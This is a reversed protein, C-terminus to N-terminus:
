GAAEQTKQVIRFVVFEAPRLPAFGIRINLHGNLIDDRTMTDPGVTVHFAHEPKTGKFAGQRWQATLFQRIADRVRDWLPPANPEFVAWQLSRCISHELFIFLRRVSVYRGDTDASLTRAGWVRIGRRPFRRIVNVGRPDLVDQAAKDIDFELGLAGIVPENAPAKFVGRTEDTRAYVGCVHGGPPVRVPLGGQPDAVLIWPHYCAAYASDHRARPDLAAADRRDPPLDIVAFRFRNAECHAIVAEAVADPAAPAHVIAVEDYVPLALAALGTRRGPRPDDGLYDALAPAAGRAGRVRAVYCRRGGNEFFGRVAHFLYAGPGAADGFLRRFDAFGTVLQPRAPGRRAAGLFAATGTAVGDIPRPGRATEDIYVGPARYVPM